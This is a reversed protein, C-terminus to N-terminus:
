DEADGQEKHPTPLNQLAKKAGKERTRLDDRSSPVKELMSEKKSGACTRTKMHLLAVEKPKKGGGVGV